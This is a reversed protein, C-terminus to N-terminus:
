EIEIIYKKDKYTIATITGIGENIGLSFMPGDSLDIFSYSDKIGEIIGVRIYSSDHILKYKNANIQELYVEKNLRNVVTIRKM